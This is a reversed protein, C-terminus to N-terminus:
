DRGESKKKFAMKKTLDVRFLNQTEDRLEGLKKENLFKGRNCKDNDLM